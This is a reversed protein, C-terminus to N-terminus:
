KKSLFKGEKEKLKFLRTYSSATPKKGEKSCLAFYERLEELGNNIDDIDSCNKAITYASLKKMNTTAM